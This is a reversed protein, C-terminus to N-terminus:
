PRESRRTEEPSGHSRWAVSQRAHIGREEASVIQPSSSVPTKRRLVSPGPSLSPARHQGQYDLEIGSSRTDGGFRVRRAQTPSPEADRVDSRPIEDEPGHQPGASGSKAKGRALMQLMWDSNGTAMPPTSSRLRWSTATCMGSESGRWDSDSEGGPRGRSASQRCRPCQVPEVPRSVHSM